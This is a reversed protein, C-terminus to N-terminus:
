RLATLLIWLYRTEIFWLRRSSIDTMGIMYGAILLAALILVIIIIKNKM